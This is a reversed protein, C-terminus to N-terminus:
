LVAETTHASKHKKRRKKRKKTEESGTKPKIDTKKKKSKKCSLPNPGKVKKKKKKVVEKEDGFTQIKLKQIVTQQHSTPKLETETKKEAAMLSATSPNELMIANFAIYLIPQGTRNRLVERLVPDQTGVIYKVTKKTTHQICKDAGKISKSHGCPAKQYQQLIKLPGYLVSGFAECEDLICQTICINVEAELYKPLQERINIKQKLAARCFTGDVLVYYPPSYGFNKKYFALSKRVQKQRKIGMAEYLLLLVLLSYRFSIGCKRLFIDVLDELRDGSWGTQVAQKQRSLNVIVTMLNLLKSRLTKSFQEHSVTQTFINHTQSLIYRTDANMAVELKITGIYVESCLTWFHPEQVSYVGELQSVRQYCGPLVHDLERPTRQMLIGVSDRLLPLVSITVLVAIFMSCLPDAIMWGFYYILLSSIIVGVSGLTDALIHLFVGQMIQAQSAKATNHSHGHSDGGHSHGHGKRPPSLSRDHDRYHSRDFSSSSSKRTTAHIGGGKAGFGRGRARGTFVMKLAFRPSCPNQIICYHGPKVVVMPLPQTVLRENGKLPITQPGVELRTINTNCMFKMDDDPSVSLDHCEDGFTDLDEDDLIKFRKALNLASYSTCLM